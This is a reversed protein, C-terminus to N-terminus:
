MVKKLNGNEDFQNSIGERVKDFNVDMICNMLDCKDYYLCTECVFQKTNYFAHSVELEKKTPVHYDVKNVFDFDKIAFDITGDRRRYMYIEGFFEITDGVKLGPPINDKGLKVWVHEEYYEERSCDYDGDDFVLRSFCIKKDAICEIVGYFTCCSMNKLYAIEFAERYPSTIRVPLAKNGYKDVPYHEKTIEGYGKWKLPFAEKDKGCIGCYVHVCESM